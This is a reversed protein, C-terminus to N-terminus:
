KWKQYSERNFAELNEKQSPDETLEPRRFSMEEL